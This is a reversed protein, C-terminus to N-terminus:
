LQFPFVEIFNSSVKFSQSALDTSRLPIKAGPVLPIQGLSSLPLPKSILCFVSYTLLSLRLAATCVAPSKAPGLNYTSTLDDLIVKLDIEVTTHVANHAPPKKTVVIPLFIETGSLGAERHRNTAAFWHQIM